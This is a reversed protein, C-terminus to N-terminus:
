RQIDPNYFGMNDIYIDQFDPAGELNVHSTKNLIEDTFQSDSFLLMKAGTLASNGLKHMKEAPCILM